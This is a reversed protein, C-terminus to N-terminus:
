IIKSFVISSLELFIDTIILLQNLQSKGDYFLCLLKCFLFLNEMNFKTLVIACEEVRSKFTLILEFCIPAPSSALVTRGGQQSRSSNFTCCPKAEKLHKETRETPSLSATSICPRTGDKDLSQCELFAGLSVRKQFM